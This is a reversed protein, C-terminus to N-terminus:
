VEGWWVSVGNVDVKVFVCWGGSGCVFGDTAFERAAALTGGM